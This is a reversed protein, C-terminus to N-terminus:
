WPSGIMTFGSWFYPHSLDDHTLTIGLPEDGKSWTLIQKSNDIKVKGQLMALQAQRLAEAKIPATQLQQYFETILGLTGDTNVYWLGALASKVGASTALGGFGLEADKSNKATRCASLVLLEVAPNDFGLTRIDNLKLREDGWFQIFSNSFEGPKLEGHTSLHVIGYSQSREKKLNSITFKEKLLVEGKWKLRDRIIELEKPVTPLPKSAFDVNTFIPTGMALVQTNRINLYRTDTLSLSPMLGVSYREILFGCHTKQKINKYRQDNCNALKGDQLAALPMSLLDTDLIFTLNNIKQSQLHEKEIPEILWKYLKQSSEKYNTFDSLGEDNIGNKFEENTKKVMGRTINNFRKYIPKGKATILVIELQDTDNKKDETLAVNTNKNDPEKEPVFTIYIIAPKVGTELQINHLVQCAEVLTKGALDAGIHKEYERILKGELASIGADACPPLITLPQRPIKNGRPPTKSTNVQINGRTVNDVYSEGIRLISSGTTINGRTGNITSNGIVFPTDNMGGGQRIIISGGSGEDATSISTPTNLDRVLGTARFFRGTTINVNGGQIAGTADIFAVQIDGPPDLTVNGGRGGFGIGQTTIGQTTIQSTSKIFVDGGNLRASTDISGTTIAKGSLNLSGANAGRTGDAGNAGDGGSPGSSGPYTYKMGTGGKGGFGVDGSITSIDATTIDGSFAKIEIQNGNGGDGGKGGDGGIGPTNSNNGGPGGVGGVGGDGYIKATTIDGSNATLSILGAAGGNGGLGGSDTTGSFNPNSGRGGKGGPGGATTINATKIGESGAMLKIDGAVGGNGGAGAIGGFQSADNGNGGMGGGTTIIDGIRIRGSNVTLIIEGGTGGAGGAGGNGLPNSIGTDVGVGGDGGDGGKTNIAGTIINESATLKSSGGAGGTGGTGGTIRINKNDWRSSNPNKIGTDGKGGTAIINETEISGSNATLLVQGGNGGAKGSTNLQNNSNEVANGGSAGNAYINGAVINAAQIDVKGASQSPQTGSVNLNGLVASGPEVKVEGANVGGATLLEPLSVIPLSWANPQSSSANLPEVELSLVNGLQSIRVLNKGPVAAVNIQGGPATLDGKSAVTGAVFTLSQGDKLNLNAFNAIAGPQGMTFAFSTPNGVLAAYNNNGAANFWGSGFGIGNATTATFTAPIDLRANAGFIIGSPNMLYLNATGNTVQITGDIVSANGGVVRGLINRIGTTNTLDFNAIEKETLGFKTFSHFLNAKDESLQGGTININNGNQNVVTATGDPTISQAQVREVVLNAFLPFSVLLLSTTKLVFNKTGLGICSSISQM